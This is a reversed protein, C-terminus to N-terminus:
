SPNTSAVVFVTIGGIFRARKKQEEFEEIWLTSEEITLSSAALMERITAEFNLIIDAASPDAMAAAHLHLEVEILGADTFAHYLDRAAYPQTCSDAIAGFIKASIQPHRSSQWVGHMDPESIVIRGGPKVIRRLEAFVTPIDPVHTLVRDLRVADFYATPADVSDASSLVFAVNRLDAYRLKAESLMAESVDIGTVTGHAGVLESLKKADEGTGCGIDGVRSGAGVRMLTFTQRKYVQFFDIAHMADLRSTFQRATSNDVHAFGGLLQNKVVDRLAM